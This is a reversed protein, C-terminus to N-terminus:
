DTTSLNDEVAAQERQLAKQLKEEFMEMVFQKVEAMERTLVEGHPIPIDMAQKM